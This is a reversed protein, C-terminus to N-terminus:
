FDERAEGDDACGLRPPPPVHIACTAARDGIQRTKRVGGEWKRGKADGDRVGESGMRVASSVRM